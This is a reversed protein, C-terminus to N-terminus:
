RLHWFLFHGIKQNKLARQLLFTVLGCCLYSEHKLAQVLQLLYLSLEDDTVDTLCKVAYSRVAEDAYAYDLLELAKEVRLLQWKELLATMECIEYRDNWEVCHLLRPLLQPVNQLCYYRHSWLIKREQDHM